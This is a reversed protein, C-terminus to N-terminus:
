KNLQAKKEYNFNEALFERYRKHEASNMEKPAFLPLGFEEKKDQNVYVVIWAHLKFPSFSEFDAPTYRKQQKAGRRSRPRKIYFLDGDVFGYSIEQFNSLAAKNEEYFVKAKSQFLELAAEYGCATDCVIAPNDRGIVVAEDDLVAEVTYHDSEEYLNFMLKTASPTNKAAVQEFLQQLKMNAVENHLLVAGARKIIKHLTKL